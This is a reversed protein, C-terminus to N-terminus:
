PSSLFAFLKFFKSQRRKITVGSGGRSNYRICRPAVFLFGGLGHRSLEVATDASSFLRASAVTAGFFLDESKNTRRVVLRLLIQHWEPEVPVPHKCTTLRPGSLALYWVLVSCAQSQFVAIKWLPPGKKKRRISCVCRFGTGNCEFAKIANCEWLLM